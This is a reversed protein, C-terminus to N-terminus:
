IKAVTWTRFESLFRASLPFPPFQPPVTVIFNDVLDPYQNPRIQPEFHKHIISDPTFQKPNIPLRQPVSIIGLAFTTSQYEYKSPTRNKKPYNLVM